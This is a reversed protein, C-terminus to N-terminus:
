MQFLFSLDEPTLKGLAEESDGLAAASMSRKKDQLQIIRSEISNEIIVRLVKVPRHQGLRHVRDAAQLEVAPNWWPDCLIVRSAEVLNLAVGGAKLSLLFVTCDTTETFYNITRNRAEPTMSGQLRAIKYGALQLRRALIDLFSTFQSFILTKLTHNENRTKSLEEVIAEIKTSTRWKGPDIRSLMGQRAQKEDVDEITEQELDISLPLHCVPCDPTVGHIASDIYQRACERCFVHKCKASIIPDEAEDLCIRCTHIDTIQGSAELASSLGKATKSKLVLDPHDAMQRMRTILTFINSYNNLVTNADLFTSFKRQVSKYLSTYLEEEEETFYDRRVTMERPPLGLDDARELKTRRLMMRDLLIKLKAFAKQGPSGPQAGHKQIPKLIENNWFCVHQMPTHGCQNCHRQDKFSWHLSRCDCAKCFYHAFPEAGLFRILSYLEGVRNQLPTGSLCWRFQADLAFAAKATNCSREKINHAEDLIVRHWQIQHLLSKEKRIEGNRRFGSHQRRFASELVAYSTLIIDHSKLEQMNGTRSGGHWVCVRVNSTFKDIENRWQMIAVTPAVILTYRGSGPQYDSLILSLTQITKGMGMEDALVGGSWLGKEQQKMWYLGELQFPLMKLSLGVPQKAKIPEVVKVQAEVDGWVDRLEPHHEMLKLHTKEQWTLRPGKKVAARKRKKRGDARVTTPAELDSESALSSLDSDDESASGDDAFVGEASPSRAPTKVKAKAKGKKKAAPAVGKGMKTLSDFMADMGEVSTARKPLPKMKRGKPATRKSNMSTLRKSQAAASSPGDPVDSDSSSSGQVLASAILDQAEQLKGMGVLSFVQAVYQEPLNDPVFDAASLTSSVRRAAAPRKPKQDVEPTDEDESIVVKSKGKGKDVIAKSAVAPELDSEADDSISASQADINDVGDKYDADGESDSDSTEPDPLRYSKVSAAARRRPTGRSSSSAVPAALKGSIEVHKHAPEDEEDDDEGKPRRPHIKHDVIHALEDAQELEDESPQDHPVTAPEDVEDESGSDGIDDVNNHRESPLVGSQNSYPLHDHPRTTHASRDHELKDAAPSDYLSTTPTTTGTTHAHHTTMREDSDSDITTIVSATSSSAATAPGRKHVPTTEVAQKAQGYRRPGPRAM